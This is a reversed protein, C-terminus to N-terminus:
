AEQPIGMPCMDACKGCGVCKEEVITFKEDKPVIAEMPCVTVCGGCGFCDDDIVYKKM